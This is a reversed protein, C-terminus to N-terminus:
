KKLKLQHPGDIFLYSEGYKNCGFRKILKLFDSREM